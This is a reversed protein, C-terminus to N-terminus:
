YWWADGYLGAGILVPSLLAVVAFACVATNALLRQTKSLRHFSRAYREYVGHRSLLAYVGMGVVGGIAWFLRERPIWMTSKQFRYLETLAYSLRLWIAFQLAFMRWGDIPFRSNGREFLLTQFCFVSYYFLRV